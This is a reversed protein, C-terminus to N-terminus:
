LRFFDPLGARKRIINIYTAAEGTAGLELCAEAYNLIVEAFVLYIWINQHIVLCM